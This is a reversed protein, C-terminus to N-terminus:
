RTPAALLTTGYTDMWARNTAYDPNASSTPWVPRWRPTSGPVALVQDLRDHPAGDGAPYHELVVLPGTCRATLAASIEEAANTISVAIGNETVIALRGGDATRWVRLLAMGGGGACASTYVWAPDYTVLQHPNPISPLPPFDDQNVHM